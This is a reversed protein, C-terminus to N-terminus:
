NNFYFGVSFEFVTDKGDTIYYNDISFDRTKEFIKATNLFTPLRKLFFNKLERHVKRKRSEPLGYKNKYLFEYQDLFEYYKLTFYNRVQKDFEKYIKEKLNNDDFPLKSINLSTHFNDVYRDGWHQKPKPYGKNVSHYFKVYIM